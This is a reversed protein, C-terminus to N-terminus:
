RPQYAFRITHHDVVYLLVGVSLLSRVVGLYAVRPFFFVPSPNDLLSRPDDINYLWKAYSTERSRRVASGFRPMLSQVGRRCLHYGDLPGARILFTLWSSSLGQKRQCQHNRCWSCPELRGTLRHWVSMGHPINPVFIGAYTTAEAPHPESTPTQRNPNSTLM